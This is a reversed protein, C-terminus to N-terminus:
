GEGVALDRAVCRREEARRLLRMATAIDVLMWFDHLDGGVAQTLKQLRYRVTNPHMQVAKAATQINMGCDLYAQLTAGLGDPADDALLTQLEPPVLRLATDTASSVLYDHVGVDSLCRVPEGASCVALAALAEGYGDRADLLRPHGFSVGACASPEGSGGGSLARLISSAARRPASFVAGVLESRRCSLIHQLGASTLESRVRSELRQLDLDGSSRSVPLRATVFSVESSPECDLVALRIPLNAENPQGQLLDEVLEYELRQREQQFTPGGESYATTAVNSLEDVYALWNRSLSALDDRFAQYPSGLAVLEDWAIRASLRYAHLHTALSMSASRRRGALHRWFALEDPRLSRGEMQLELFQRLFHANAENIEQVLREDQIADYEAIEARLNALMAGAIKRRHRDFDRLVEAISDAMTDCTAELWASGGRWGSSPRSGGQMTM